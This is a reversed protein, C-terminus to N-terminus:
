PLCGRPVVGPWWGRLMSVVSLDEAEAYMYPYRPGLEGAAEARLVSGLGERVLEDVVAWRPSGAGASPPLGYDLARPPPSAPSAEAEAPTLPRPALAAPTPGTNVPTLGPEASGPRPSAPPTGPDGEGEVPAAAPLDMPSAAAAFDM